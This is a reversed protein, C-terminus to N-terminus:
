FIIKPHNLTDPVIQGTHQKGNQLSKVKLYAKSKLYGAHDYKYISVPNYKWGHWVRKCGSTAPAGTQFAQTHCSIATGRSGRYREELM